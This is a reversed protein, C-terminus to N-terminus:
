AVRVPERRLIESKAAEASGYVCRVKDAQVATWADPTELVEAITQTGHLAVSLHKFRHGASELQCQQAMIKAM